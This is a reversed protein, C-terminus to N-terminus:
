ATNMILLIVMYLAPLKEFTTAHNHSIVDAKKTQPAFSIAFMLPLCMAAEAVVQPKEM